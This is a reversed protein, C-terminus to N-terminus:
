ATKARFAEILGYNIVNDPYAVLLKKIGLARRAHKRYQEFVAAIPNWLLVEPPCAERSM